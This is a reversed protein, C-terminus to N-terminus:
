FAGSAVSLSAFLVQSMKIIYYHLMWYLKWLIKFCLLLIDKQPKILVWVSRTYTHTDTLTHTHTQGHTHAQPHKDTQTHINTDTHTQSHTHTHTHTHTYDFTCLNGNDHTKRGWYSKVKKREKQKQSLTERHLGPQGPDQETSSAPRSGPSSDAVAKQTSPNFTHVM